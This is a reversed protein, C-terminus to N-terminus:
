GRPRPPSCCRGRRRPRTPPPLLPAPRPPQPRCPLCPRHPRSALARMQRDASAPRQQSGSWPCTDPAPPAHQLPLAAMGPREQRCLTRGHGRRPYGAPELVALDRTIIRAAPGHASSAGLRAGPWPVRARCGSDAHARSILSPPLYLLTCDHVPPGLGSSQPTKMM